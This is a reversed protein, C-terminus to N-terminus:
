SCLLDGSLTLILPFAVHHFLLAYVCYSFEVVREHCGWVGWGSM